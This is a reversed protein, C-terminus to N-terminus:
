GNSQLPVSKRAARCRCTGTTLPLHRGQLARHEAALRARVVGDRGTAGLTRVAEGVHGHHWALRARAATLGPTTDPITMLLEAARSPEHAAILVDALRVRDRPAAAPASIDVHDLLDVTRGAAALGVAGFVTGARGPLSDALRGLGLRVRLPLRRSIQLGLLAPDDRVHDLVTRVVLPAHGVARVPDLPSFTL